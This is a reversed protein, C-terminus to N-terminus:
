KRKRKGSAILSQRLKLILENNEKVLNDKENKLKSIKKECKQVEELTCGGKMDNLTKLEQRRKEVKSSLQTSTNDNLKQELSHVQSELKAKEEISKNLSKLKNQNLQKIEDIKKGYQSQKLTSETIKEDNLKAKQLRIKLNKIEEFLQDRKAIMEKCGLSECKIDTSIRREKENLGKLKESLETNKEKLKESVENYQSTVHKLKLELEASSEANQFEVKINRLESKMRKKESEKQKIESDLKKPDNNPEPRGCIINGM